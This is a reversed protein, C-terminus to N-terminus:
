FASAPRSRSAISAWCCSGMALFSSASSEARYLFALDRSWGGRQRTVAPIPGAPNGPRDGLDSYPFILRIESKERTTGGGRHVVEHPPPRLEVGQCGRHECGRPAH